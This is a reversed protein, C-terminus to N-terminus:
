RVHAHQQLQFQYRHLTYPSSSSRKNAGRGEKKEDLFALQGQPHVDGGAGAGVYRELSERAMGYQNGRAQNGNRSQRPGREMAAMEGRGGKGDRGGTQAYQKTFLKSEDANSPDDSSRTIM